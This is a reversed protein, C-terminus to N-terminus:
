GRIAELRADVISAYKSIEAECIAQANINDNRSEEKLKKYKKNKSVLMHGLENLDTQLKELTDSHDPGHSSVSMRGITEQLSKNKKKLINYKERLSPDEGDFTVLSQQKIRKLEQNKLELADCFKDSKEREKNLDRELQKIEDELMAVSKSFKDTGVEDLFRKLNRKTENFDLSQETVIPDALEILTSLQTSLLKSDESPKTAFSKYYDREKTAKQLKLRLSKVESFTSNLPSRCGVPSRAERTVPSFSKLTTTGRLLYQYRNMGTPTSAKQIQTAMGTPTSAKQIQPSVQSKQVSAARTRIKNRSEMEMQSIKANLTKNMIEMDAKLNKYARERKHIENDKSLIHTTAEALKKQLSKIGDSAKKLNIKHMDNELM